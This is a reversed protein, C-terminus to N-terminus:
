GRYNVGYIRFLGPEADDWVIHGRPRCAGHRGCTAPATRLSVYRGPTGSRRLTFTAGRAQYELVFSQAHRRDAVLRGHASIYTKDAAAQLYFTQGFRDGDVAAHLIWRQELR